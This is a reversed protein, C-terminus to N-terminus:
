FVSTTKLLSKACFTVQFLFISLVPTLLANYVSREFATQYLIQLDTPM